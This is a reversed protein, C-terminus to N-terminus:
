KQKTVGMKIVKIIKRLDTELAKIEKEAKIILEESKEIVRKMSLIRQKELKIFDKRELISALITDERRILLYKMLDFNKVKRLFELLKEKFEKLIKKVCENM